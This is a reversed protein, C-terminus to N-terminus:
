RYAPHYENKEELFFRSVGAKPFICYKGEFLSSLAVQFLIFRVARRKWYCFFDRSRRVRNKQRREAPRRDAFLGGAPVAAGRKNM